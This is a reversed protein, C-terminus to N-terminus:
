SIQDASTEGFAARFEEPTELRWDGNTVGQGLATRLEVENRLVLMSVPRAM